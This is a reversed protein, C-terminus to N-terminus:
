RPSMPTSAKYRQRAFSQAAGEADHNAPSLFPCGGHQMGNALYVISWKDWDRTTSWTRESSEALDCVEMWFRRPRGVGHQGPVWSAIQSPEQHQAVPRPGLGCAIDGWLSSTHHDRSSARVTPPLSKLDSVISRGLRGVWM